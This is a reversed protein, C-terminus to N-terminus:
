NYKTNLHKEFKNNIKHLRVAPLDTPKLEQAKIPYQLSPSTLGQDKIICEAHSSYCELQQLMTTRQIHESLSPLKLDLFKDASSGRSNQRWTHKLTHDLFSNM